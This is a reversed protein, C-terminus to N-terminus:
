AAKNYAALKKAVDVGKTGRFANHGIVGRLNRAWYMGFNKMVFSACAGWDDVKHGEPFTAVIVDEGTKTHNFVSFTLTGYPTVAKGVEVTPVKASKEVVTPATCAVAKVTKATKPAVPKKPMPTSEELAKRNAALLEDSLGMKRLKEIERDIKATRDDLKKLYSALRKEYTARKKAAEEDRKRSKAAELEEDASMSLKINNRENMADKLMEDCLRNVEHKKGDNNAIKIKQIYDKVTASLM